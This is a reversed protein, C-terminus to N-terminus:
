LNTTDINIITKAPFDSSDEIVYLLVKKGSSIDKSCEDLLRVVDKLEIPDKTILIKDEIRYEAIYKM